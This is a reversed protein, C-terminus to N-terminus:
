SIVSTTLRRVMVDSGVSCATLGNGKEHGSVSLRWPERPDLQAEPLASSPQRNHAEGHHLSRQRLVKMGVGREVM